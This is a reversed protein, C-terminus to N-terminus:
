MSLDEAETISFEASFQAWSSQLSEKLNIEGGPHLGLEMSMRGRQEVGSNMGRVMRLPHFCALPTLGPSALSLCM